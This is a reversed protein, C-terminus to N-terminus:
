KDSYIVDKLARLPQDFDFSFGAEVLKNANTRQSGLLLISMEGLAAKLAFAPTPAFAPRSLVKGLTRAFTRNRVINPSSLNFAGEASGNELLWIIAKVVDDIHIWPFWMGGNGYPGGAFLKFPLIMKPLAGGQTSLVVGTRLYVLRTHEAAPKAAAEWAKTVDALFDNGPASEETLEEDERSGYYGVASGQLLVEPKNEAKAIADVVARTTDLRSDLILDKRDATWRKDGIGAGALNIIAKAGDALEGWGDASAGDWAVATAGKPLGLVKKPSRSLIIVEYGKETLQDVLRRGILGSGGPIIVRM